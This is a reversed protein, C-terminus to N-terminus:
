GRENLAVQDFLLDNMCMNMSEISEIYHLWLILVREQDFCRPGILKAEKESLLVTGLRM